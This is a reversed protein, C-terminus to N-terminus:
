LYEVNNKETIKGCKCYSKVLSITYKLNCKYCSQARKFFSYFDEFKSDFCNNKVSEIIKVVTKLEDTNGKESDTLM